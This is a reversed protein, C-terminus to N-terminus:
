LSFLLWSVYVILAILIPVVIMFLGRGVKMMSSTKDQIAEARDHLKESREYQRKSFEFQERQLDRIEKLLRVTESDGRTEM